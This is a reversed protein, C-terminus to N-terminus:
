SCNIACAERPLPLQRTVARSTLPSLNRSSSRQSASNKSTRGRSPTPNATKIAADVKLATKKFANYLGIKQSKGNVVDDNQNQRKAIKALDAAELIPKNGFGAGNANGNGNGGASVSSGAVSVNGPATATDTTDSAQLAAKADTASITLTAVAAQEIRDDLFQDRFSQTAIDVLVQQRELVLSGSRLELNIEQVTGALATADGTFTLLAQPEGTDTFTTAITFNSNAASTLTSVISYSPLALTQPQGAYPDPELVPVKTLENISFGPGPEPLSGVLATPSALYEITDLAPDGSLMQRAELQEIQPRRSQRKAVKRLVRRFGLSTIVDTWCGPFRRM